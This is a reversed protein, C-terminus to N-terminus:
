KTQNFQDDANILRNVSQYFPILRKTNRGFYTEDTGDNYRAIIPDDSYIGAPDISHGILSYFSDLTSVAAVPSKM